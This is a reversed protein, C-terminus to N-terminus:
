AAMEYCCMQKDYHKLWVISSEVSSPRRVSVQISESNGFGTIPNGYAPSMAPVQNAAAAAAALQNHLMM